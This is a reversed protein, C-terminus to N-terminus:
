AEIVKCRTLETQKDGRFETHDKITGKITYFEGMEWMIAKTTSWKFINQNDDEFLYNWKTGYQTDFFFERTFKLVLEVKDGISGHYSGVSIIRSSVMEKAIEQLNDVAMIVNHENLIFAQSDMLEVTQYLDTPQKFYWGLTYNFFGGATALEDKISFTNPHIILFVSGNVFGLKNKTILNQEEKRAEFAADKRAQKRINSKDRKVQEADTLIKREVWYGKKDECKFCVGNAVHMYPLIIGKGQCKWCHEWTRKYPKGNKEFLETYGHEKWM